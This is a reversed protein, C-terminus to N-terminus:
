PSVGILMPEVPRSMVPAGVPEPISQYMTDIRYLQWGRRDSAHAFCYLMEGFWGAVIVEGPLAIEAVAGDSGILLGPQSEDGNSGLALQGSPSWAPHNCSYGNDIKTRTGARWLVRAREEISVVECFLIREGPGLRMDIVEYADDGISVPIPNDRPVFLMTRQYTPASTSGETFVLRGPELDWRMPSKTPNSRRHIVSLTGDIHGAWLTAEDDVHNSTEFVFTTEDIWGMGFIVDEPSSDPSIRFASGSVLPQFWVGEYVWDYPNVMENYVIHSGDPSPSLNFDMAPTYTLRRVAGSVIDVTYADSQGGIVMQFLLTAGDPMWQPSNLTPVTGDPELRWMDQDAIGYLFVEGFDLLKRSQTGDIAVLWLAATPLALTPSLSSTPVMVALTQGDPSAKWPLAVQPISPGVLVLPTGDLRIARVSGDAPQQYILTAASLDVVPATPSPSVPVATPPTETRAQTPSLLPLTTISTDRISVPTSSTTSCAAFLLLLIVVVRRNM